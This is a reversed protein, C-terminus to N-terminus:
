WKHSTKLQCSNQQCNILSNAVYFEATFFHYYFFIHMSLFTGLGEYSLPPSYFLAYDSYVLLLLTYMKINWILLKNWMCRGVIVIRSGISCKNPAIDHEEQCRPHTSLNIWSLNLVCFLALMLNTLYSTAETM